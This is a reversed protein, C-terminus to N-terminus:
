RKTLENYVSDYEIELISLGLKETKSCKEYIKIFVNEYLYFVESKHPRVM